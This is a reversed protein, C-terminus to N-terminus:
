YGCLGLKMCPNIDKGLVYLILKNKENDDKVGQLVSRMMRGHEQEDGFYCMALCLRGKGPALSLMKEFVNKM